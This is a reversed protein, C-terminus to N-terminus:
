VERRFSLANCLRASIRSFIAVIEKIQSIQSRRKKLARGEIRFSSINAISVTANLSGALTDSISRFNTLRAAPKKTIMEDILRSLALPFDRLQSSLPLACKNQDLHWRLWGIEGEQIVEAFQQRFLDRGLFIEYFVFGLIYSDSVNAGYEGSIEELIEPSSYKLSPLAITAAESLKVVPKLVVEGDMLLVVNSPDLNCPSDCRRHLEEVAAASKLFTSVLKASPAPEATLLDSLRRGALTNTDYNAIM